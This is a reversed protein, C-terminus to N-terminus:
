TTENHIELRAAVKWLHRSAAKTPKVLRGKMLGVAKKTGHVKKAASKDPLPLMPLGQFPGGGLAEDVKAHEDAVM